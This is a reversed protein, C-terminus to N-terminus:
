NDGTRNLAITNNAAEVLPDVQPTIEKILPHQPDELDIAFRGSPGEVVFVTAISTPDRVVGLAQMAADTPDVADFPMSWTVVHTAEASEGGYHNAVYDEIEAIASAKRDAEESATGMVPLDHIATHVTDLVDAIIAHLLGMPDLDARGRTAAEFDAMLRDPLPRLTEPM